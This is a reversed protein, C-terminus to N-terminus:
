PRRSGARRSRAARRGRGARARSRRRRRGTRPRPRARRRARRGRAPTCGSGDDRAASSPEGRGRLPEDVGLISGLLRACPAHGGRRRASSTRPSFAPCGRERGVEGGCREEGEPATQEPSAVALRGTRALRGPFWPEVAEPFGTEDMYSIAVARSGSSHRASQRGLVARVAEDGSRPGGREGARAARAPPVAHGGRSRRGNRAAEYWEVGVARDLLPLADDRSDRRRRPPSSTRQRAGKEAAGHIQM